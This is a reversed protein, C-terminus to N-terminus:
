FGWKFIIETGIEKYCEEFTQAYNTEIDVYIKDHWHSSIGIKGRFGYPNSYSQGWFTNSEHIILANHLDRLISGEVQLKFIKSFSKEWGLGCAVSSKTIFTNRTNHQKINHSSYRTSVIPYLCQDELFHIRFFLTNETEILVEKGKLSNLGSLKVNLGDDKQFSYQFGMGYTKYTYNEEKHYRYFAKPSFCHKHTKEEQAVCMSTAAILSAGLLKKM